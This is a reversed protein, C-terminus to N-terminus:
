LIQNLFIEWQTSMEEIILAILCIKVYKNAIEM